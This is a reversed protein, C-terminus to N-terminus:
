YIHGVLLEILADVDAKEDRERGLLESTHKRVDM